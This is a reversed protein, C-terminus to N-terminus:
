KIRHKGYTETKRHCPPCLTRGNTLDYRLEPYSIWPKIHDAHLVGGHKGCEQCEYNDRKFVSKQWDRYQREGEFTTERSHKKVKGGKWRPHNEGRLAEWIIGKNWVTPMKGKTGKNWPTFGKKFCTIPAKHGTKYGNSKGSCERSCFKAKRKPYWEKGCYECKYIKSLFKHHCKISCFKHRFIWNKVSENVPKSFIKDCVLCQKKM